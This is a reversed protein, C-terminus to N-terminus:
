AWRGNEFGCAYVVTLSGTKARVRNITSKTNLRRSRVTWESDSSQQLIRFSTRM